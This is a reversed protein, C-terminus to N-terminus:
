RELKLRGRRNRIGMRSRRKIDEVMIKEQIRRSKEWNEEKGGKEINKKGNRKGKM